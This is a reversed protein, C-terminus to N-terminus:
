SDKELSDRIEQLKQKFKKVEEKYTVAFRIEDFLDDNKFIPNKPKTPHNKFVREEPYAYNMLDQNNPELPEKSKM